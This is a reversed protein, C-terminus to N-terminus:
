MWALTNVQTKPKEGEFEPVKRADGASELRAFPRQGHAEGPFDLIQRTFEESESSSLGFSLNNAFLKSITRLNEIINEVYPDVFVTEANLEKAVRKGGRPNHQKQLFVTQIDCSRAKKILEMLYRPTPERGEMEVSLQNLGYDRCCYGLAPHSVLINKQLTKNFLTVCEQDLQDFEKELLSLNNAFYREQEPDHESLIQAIQTAQIKLIRPSLWIHPDHADANCCGCGMEILDVGERQDIIRTTRQLSPLLRNEFSEGLRFWIEGKQVSVMQRPTPEYTHSNAGPPVIVTVTVHEGGIREVLFKQPTISVLVPTKAEAAACLFLLFIFFKHM